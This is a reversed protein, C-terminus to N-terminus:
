KNRRPIASQILSKYHATRKEIEQKKMNTIYRRVVDIETEPEVSPIPPSSNFEEVRKAIEKQSIPQQIIPKEKQEKEKIKKGVCVKAHKYRLTGAAMTKLCDPCTEKKGVNFKQSDSKKPPHGRPNKMKQKKEPKVEEIQKVEEIPKEEVAEVQKVEEIDPKVEEIVDTKIDEQINNDM